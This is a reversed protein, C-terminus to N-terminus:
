MLHREVFSTYDDGAIIVHDLVRIDVIRGAEALQRTIALDEASPETNGSPHNHAVIIAAASEAIALRFVDRPHIMVANLSGESVTTHRIIQNAANLLVVVFTEKRLHRMGPALLRALVAPSTVSTRDVFPEAQIRHALEFAACLAASKALGMGAVNQLEAVDRGAMDNLSAYRELLAHAVNEASAASSGSGILLSLLEQTSLAWAGLHVLRERPRDHNQMKASGERNRHHDVM